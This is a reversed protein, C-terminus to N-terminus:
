AASATIATSVQSSVNTWTGITVTAMAKLGTLMLLVIFALILGYELTSTGDISRLLRVLKQMASM